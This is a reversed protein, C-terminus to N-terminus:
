ELSSYLFNGIALTKDNATLMQQNASTFAEILQKSAETSISTLKNDFITKLLQLQSNGASGIVLMILASVLSYPSVVLNEEPKYLQQMLGLCFETTQPASSTVDM